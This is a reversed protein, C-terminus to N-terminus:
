AWVRSPSNVVIRVAEPVQDALSEDLLRLNAHCREDVVAPTVLIPAVDPGGSTDYVAPTIVVSGILDLAYAHSTTVLHGDTNVAWPLAAILEAETAARLYLDLM